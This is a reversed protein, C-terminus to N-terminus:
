RFAKFQGSSVLGTDAAAANMALFDPGPKSHPNPIHGKWTSIVAAHLLLLMRHCSSTCATCTHCSTGVFTHTCSPVAAVFQKLKQLQGLNLLSHATQQQAPMQHTSIMALRSNTGGSSSVGVVFFELVVIAQCGVQGLARQTPHRWLVM